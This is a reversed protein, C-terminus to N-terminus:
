PRALRSHFIGLVDSTHSLLQSITVKSGTDQRYYPLYDSLHGDLKITGKAVQQLILMSTFQKTISGLRFKVDPFFKPDDTYSPIGSTERM